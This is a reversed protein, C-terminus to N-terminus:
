FTNTTTLDIKIATASGANYFGKMAWDVTLRERGPMAVPYETFVVRPLDILLSFSNAKFFNIKMTQETQAAFTNFDDLSEFDMTGSIALTPATTRRVKAIENDNNLTLIGEINNNYTITLAEIRSIAAGDLQISCTDWTFPHVPSGPFSPTTKAIMNRAGGVVNVTCRLDQNPVVNMTLGGFQCGAYQFSTSVVTGARFVEMTYATLPHLSSLDSQRPTFENLFLGGGLSSVSNVGLVGELGYGISVPHGHFVWDGVHREAGGVDDPQTYRGIINRTEFREIATAM